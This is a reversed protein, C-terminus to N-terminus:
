REEGKNLTVESLTNDKLEEVCEDWCHQERILTM